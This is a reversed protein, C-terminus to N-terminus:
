NTPLAAFQTAGSRAVAMGWPMPAFSFKVAFRNAWEPRTLAKTFFTNDHTVFACENFELADLLQEPQAFTLIRIHHRIFIMNALAGSPLCVTRGVLDGWDHM